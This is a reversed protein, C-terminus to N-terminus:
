GAVKVRPANGRPKQNAGAQTKGRYKVDQYLYITWSKGKLCRSLMRPFPVQVNPGTGTGPLGSVWREDKMLHSAPLLLCDFLQKSPLSAAPCVEATQTPGKQSSWDLESGGGFDPTNGQHSHTFSARRDLFVISFVTWVWVCKCVCVWGRYAWLAQHTAFTELFLALSSAM